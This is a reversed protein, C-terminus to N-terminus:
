RTLPQKLLYGDIFERVCADGGKQQLVLDVQAKVVPVANAPSASFGVNRMVELDNIDDGIIGVEDLGISLKECWDQLIKMKPDRGVYVHPIKLLEARAKVMGEKFGSSIIGIKIGLDHLAMIGMGDKTNYKKYQDGSEAFYMGGDTMVGDVDLILLKLRELRSRDVTLNYLLVNELPTGSETALQQLVEISLEEVKGVNQEQLFTTVDGGRQQLLFEINTKLLSM